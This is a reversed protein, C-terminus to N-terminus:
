KRKLRADVHTKVPHFNKNFRLNRRRCRLKFNVLEQLFILGEIVRKM